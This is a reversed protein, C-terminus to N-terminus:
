ADVSDAPGIGSGPLPAVRAFGGDRRVRRGLMAGVRRVIAREGGPDLAAAYARLTRMRDTRTLGPLSFRGLQVLNRLQRRTRGLIFCKRTREHDLFIFRPSEGTVVFINFPTLDGHVFGSLHMRAIEEGLAQLLGQKSAIAGNVAALTRLPGNGEARPTVIMEHGGSLQHGQIWV